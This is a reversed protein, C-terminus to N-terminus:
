SIYRHKDLRQLGMALLISGALTISFVMVIDALPYQPFDYDHTRIFHIFLAHFGYIPLSYRALFSLLGNPRDLATKFLVFLSIAAIFVLPGCYLYWTDAFAGNIHLQKKTGIMIGLVCAVFLAGAAWSVGRRAITMTGIARGLMAYLLYFFTDGSIYLNIPLWHMPGISQDVTNPNAIVAIILAMLALYGAQVPKVQVLPSFLYIPIIAFFFWLHYFIPKEFLKRISLGENIPTLWTIYALAVASYFLLCLVIRLFHRGQASREGFFLYGSIMFFLPVCVRSASNLLNAIDWSVAGVEPGTTVYYTTTHIVIVMLCAVARLNDLWSIKQAM